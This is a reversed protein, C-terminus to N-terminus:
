DYLNCYVLCHCIDIHVLCFSSPSPLHTAQGRWIRGAWRLIVARARPARCCFLFRCRTFAGDRDRFRDVGLVIIYLGGNGQAKRERGPQQDRRGVALCPLKKTEGCAQLEM